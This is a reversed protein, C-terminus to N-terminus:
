NDNDIVKGSSRVAGVSVSQKPPTYEMGPPLNSPYKDGTTEDVTTVKFTAKIFDQPIIEVVKAPIIEEIVADPYHSKVYDMLKEGDSVRFTDGANRTAIRGYVTDLFKTTKNAKANEEMIFTAAQLEYQEKYDSLEAVLNTKAADYNEKLSAQEREIRLITRAYSTLRSHSDIVFGEKRRPLGFSEEDVSAEESETICDYIFKSRETVEM